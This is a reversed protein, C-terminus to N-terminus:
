KGQVARVVGVSAVVVLVTGVMQYPEMFQGLLVWGAGAAIAPELSMLVGFSAAPLRRLSQMELVYAALPSLLALGATLLIQRWPFLLTGAEVVSFPLALLAAVATAVSLGQLGPFDSGVRKMMVIYGGWGVAALLAFAIGAGDAVAASGTDGLVLLVIGGGALFPWLLAVWRRATAAALLLPGCFELAVALHQPLRAIALFFAVTMIAMATGLLFLSRWQRISYDLIPPRAVVLLILAAWSIRLGGTSIAGYDSIVNVAYSVSAQASVMAIIAMVVALVVSHRGLHRATIFSLDSM